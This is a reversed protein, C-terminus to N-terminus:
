FYKELGILFINTTTALGPQNATRNLLSYEGTAALTPTISYSLTAIADITKETVGNFRGFGSNTRTGYDFYVSSQTASNLQHTWTIAGTIGSDSGAGSGSASTVTGAGAPFVNPTASSIVTRDEQIVSLTIRDRDLSTTLGVSLRKVKNLNNGFGLNQNTIPLPAGTALGVNVGFPDLGSLALNNAIEEQDTELGTTYRAYASTRSTLNYNGDVYAGNFGDKHGYALTLSSDADPTLRVGVRWIADSIRVPPFGSYRLKEYGFAGIATVFRNIAFSDLNEISENQANRANGSGTEQIADIVTRNTLRGLILGTTFQATEEQRLTNSNGSVTNPFFFQQSPSGSFGSNNTNNITYGIEGTGYEGFRHVAYPSLSFSTTQGSNQNNLFASNNNGPGVGGLVSQRQAYGRASLFVEEPILTVTADGNLNHDLRTQSSNEAYIRAVPSYDLRAQVRPTNGLVTVGPSIATVFDSRKQTNSNFVNDTFYEQIGVRPQITWGPGGTVGTPEIQHAAELSTPGATEAGPAAFGSPGPLLPNIGYSSPPPPAVSELAQAHGKGAMAACCAAAMAATRARRRPSRGEAAIRSARDTGM